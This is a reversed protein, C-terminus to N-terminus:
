HYVIQSTNITAPVSRILFYQDRIPQYSTVHGLYRTRIPLQKPRNGLKGSGRNVPLSFPLKSVMVCKESFVLFKSHPYPYDLYSTEHGISDPFVPGQNASLWDRSRFLSNQDTLNLHKPRNKRRGRENLVCSLHKLITLPHCRYVHCVRGHPDKDGHDEEGCIKCLVQLSSVGPVSHRSEM